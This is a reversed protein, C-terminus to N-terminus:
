KRRKKSAVATKMSKNTNIVRNKDLCDIISGVVYLQTLDTTHLGFKAPVPYEFTYKFVEGAKANAPIVGKVGTKWDDGLIERVIHNHIAKNASAQHPYEKINDEVVLATIGYDEDCLDMLCTATLNVYMTTGEASFYHEVDITFPPFMRQAFVGKTNMIPVIYPMEIFPLAGFRDYCLAPTGWTDSTSQIMGWYTSAYAGGPKLGDDYMTTVGITRDPFEEEMENFLHLIKGCGTCNLKSLKEFLMRYHPDALLYNMIVFRSNSKVRMEGSLPKVSVVVTQNNEAKKQTLFHKNFQHVYTEGHPLYVDHILESIKQGGYEYSVSLDQSRLGVGLNKIAVSVKLEIGPFYTTGTSVNERASVYKPYTLWMKDSILDVNDYPLSLISLKELTLTLAKASVEKYHRFALYITKGQYGELLWDVTQTKNHGPTLRTSYILEASSNESAIPFSNRDPSTSVYVEYNEEMGEALMKWSVIVKPHKIDFGKTILWHNHINNTDYMTSSLNKGDKRWTYSSLGDDLGDADIMQFGESELDFNPNLQFNFTQAYIEVQEEMYEDSEDGPKGSNGDDDDPIVPQDPDGDPTPPLPVDPEEVNPGDPNPEDVEAPTCGLVLATCICLTYM